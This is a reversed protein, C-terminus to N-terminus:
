VASINSVNQYYICTCLQWPYYEDTQGKLEFIQFRM